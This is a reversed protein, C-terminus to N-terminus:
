TENSFVRSEFQNNINSNSLMCSILPVTIKIACAVFRLFLVVGCRNGKGSFMVVMTDVERSSDCAVSM